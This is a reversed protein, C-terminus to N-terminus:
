SYIVINTKIVQEVQFDTDDPYDENFKEEGKDVASSFTSAQIHYTVTSRLASKENVFIVKYIPQNTKPKIM